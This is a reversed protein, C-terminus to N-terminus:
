IKFLTPYHYGYLRTFSLKEYLRVAVLNDEMVQLYVNPASCSISWGAILRVLQTALGGGRYEPRTVISFLGTWGRETVALGVASVDGNEALTRVYRKHPGIASDIARYGAKRNQPAGELEIFAELWEEQLAESEIVQSAPATGVAKVVTQARAIQVMSYGEGQYGRAELLADLGDPSADSIHFRPPLQRRRYFEEVQELWGAYTLVPASTLVSNARRTVGDTARLRWGELSQQVRGPWANAALEDLLRILDRSSSNM